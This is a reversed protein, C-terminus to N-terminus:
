TLIREFTWYLSCLILVSALVKQMLEYRSSSKFYLFVPLVLLIILIQGIEIGVNFFLIWSLFQLAEFDGIQELIGAFGLGHFLGFFFIVAVKHNWHKIGKFFAPLPFVALYAVIAISFAILPEVVSSSLQVFGTGAVILTVSHGLTFATVQRILTSLGSFGLVLALVFLVHDAGELIHIFGLKLLDMLTSEGKVLSGETDSLSLNSEHEEIFQELEEPSADPNQQVYEVVQEPLLEHAQVLHTDAAILFFSLLFFLSTLRRM